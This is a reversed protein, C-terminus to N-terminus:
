QNIDSNLVRSTPLSDRAGACGVALAGARNAREISEHTTLGADIGQAFAGAFADGAATTDVVHAPPAPMSGTDDDDVYWALGASGLTVVTSPGSQKLTRAQAQADEVREAQTTNLLQAAESANVLLWDIDGLAEVNVGDAPAANLVVQAGATHALKAAHLVTAWPIELQLLVISADTFNSPELMQPQFANNAGPVVVISNEGHQDIQILAMGSSGDATHMHAIDIGEQRLGDTLQTGFADTGVAGLMRVDAGARAAAVAQNAGKGGHHQAYSDALLTEGPAPHRAVSAVMDINISGVVIIM